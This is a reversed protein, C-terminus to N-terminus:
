LHVAIFEFFDHGLKDVTLGINQEGGSDNFATEINRIGISDDDIAGVAEAQAVEILKATADAPVLVLSIGVEQERAMRCQEGVNAFAETGDLLVGGQAATEFDGHAIQFDAAGAVEEAGFLAAM